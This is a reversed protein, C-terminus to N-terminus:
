TQFGVKIDLCLSDTPIEVSKLLLEVEYQLRGTFETPLKMKLDYFSAETKCMDKFRYDETLMQLLLIALLNIPESHKGNCILQLLTPIFGISALKMSVIIDGFSMMDYFILLLRQVTHEDRDLLSNMIVPGTMELWHMTCHWSLQQHSKLIQTSFSSTEKVKTKKKKSVSKSSTKTPSTTKLAEKMVDASKKSMSDIVGSLLRDRMELSQAIEKLSKQKTPLTKSDLQNAVCEKPKIPQLLFKLIQCGEEELESVGCRILAALVDVLGEQYLRIRLKRHLDYVEDELRVDPERKRLTKLLPKRYPIEKADGVMGSEEQDDEWAVRRPIFSHNDPDRERESYDKKAKINEGCITVQDGMAHAHSAPNYSDYDRGCQGIEMAEELRDNLDSNWETSSIQAFLKIVSMLEVVFKLESHNLHNSLSRKPLSKMPETTQWVKMIAQLHLADLSRDSTAGVVTQRCDGLLNCYTKLVHVLHLAGNEILYTTTKINLKRHKKVFCPFIVKKSSTTIKRSRSLPLTCVLYVCAVVDSMIAYPDNAPRYGVTQLKGKFDFSIKGEKYLLHVLLKSLSIIGRETRTLTEKKKTGLCSHQHMKRFNPVEVMHDDQCHVQSIQIITEKLINTDQCKLLSHIVKVGLARVKVCNTTRILDCLLKLKDEELLCAIGYSEQCLQHCFEMASIQECCPEVRLAIDFERFINVDIVAAMLQDNHAIVQRFTRIVPERLKPVKRLAEMIVHMGHDVLLVAIEHHHALACLIMTAAELLVKGFNSQLMDLLLPLGQKIMLLMWCDSLEVHSVLMKICILADKFVSLNQEKVIELLMELFKNELFIKANTEQFSLKTLLMLTCSKVTVSNSTLLPKLQQIHASQLSENGLKYSNVLNVLAPSRDKKMPKRTYATLMAIIKGVGIDDEDDSDSSSSATRTRQNEVDGCSCKTNITTSLLDSSLPHTTGVDLQISDIKTLMETLNGGFDVDTVTDTKYNKKQKDDDHCRNKFGKGTLVGVEDSLLKHFM